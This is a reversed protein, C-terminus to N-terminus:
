LPFIYLSIFVSCIFCLIISNVVGKTTVQPVETFSKKVSLGQVCNVIAITWGFVAAKLLMMLVDDYNIAAILEAFIFSRTAPAVFKTILFGGGLAVADFVVTLCITAVVTGILRPLLLFYDINIGLSDLLEIERNLKMTGLESAMATGSRGIIILATMIPVLERVLAIVALREVYKGAGFTPLITSLEVIVAAGVVVGALVIITLAQIGTFYIQLSTSHVPLSKGRRSETLSSKLVLYTRFLMELLYRVPSLVAYGIKGLIKNM